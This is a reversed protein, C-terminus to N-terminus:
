KDKKKKKYNKRQADKIKKKSLPFHDYRKNQSHTCM